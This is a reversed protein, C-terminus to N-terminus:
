QPPPGRARGSCGAGPDFRAAVLGGPRLRPVLRAPHPTLPRCGVEAEVVWRVLRGDIRVAGDRVGDRALARDIADYVQEPIDADCDVVSPGRNSEELRGSGVWISNVSISITM